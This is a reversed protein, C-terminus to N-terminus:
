VNPAVQPPRLVSNCYKTTGFNKYSTVITTLPGCKEALPIQHYTVELNIKAFFRNGAGIEALLEEIRSM